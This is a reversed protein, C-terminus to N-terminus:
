FTWEFSIKQEIAIKAAGAIVGGYKKMFDPSIKRELEKMKDDANTYIYTAKSLARYADKYESAPSRSTGM